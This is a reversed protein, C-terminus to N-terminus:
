AVTGRTEGAGILRAQAAGLRRDLAIMLRGYPSETGYRNRYEPFRYLDYVWRLIDREDPTIPARLEGPRPAQDYLSEAAGFRVDLERVLLAAENGGFGGPMGEVMERITEFENATIHVAQPPGGILGILRTIDPMDPHAQEATV